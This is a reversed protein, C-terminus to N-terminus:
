LDDVILSHISNKWTKQLVCMLISACLFVLINRGKKLLVLMELLIVFTLLMEYNFLAVSSHGELQEPSQKLNVLIM